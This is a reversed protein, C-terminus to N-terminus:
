AIIFDTHCFDRVYASDSLFPVEETGKKMTIVTAHPM